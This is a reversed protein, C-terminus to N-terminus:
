PTQKSRIEVTSSIIVERLLEKDSDLLRKTKIELIANTLCEAFLDIKGFSNANKWKKSDIRKSIRTDNNKKSYGQFDRGFEGYLEINVVSAFILISNLDSKLELTGIKPILTIRFEQLILNVEQSSEPDTIATLTVDM